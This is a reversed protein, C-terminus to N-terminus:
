RNKINDNVPPRGLSVLILDVEKAAEEATEKYRVRSFLSGDNLTVRVYARYCEKGGKNIKNVHKYNKEM